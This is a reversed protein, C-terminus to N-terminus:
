LNGRKYDREMDRMFNICPVIGHIIVWWKPKHSMYQNISYSWFWKFWAFRRKM